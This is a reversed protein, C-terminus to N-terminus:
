EGPNWRNAKTSQIEFEGIWDKLSYFLVRAARMFCPLPSYM